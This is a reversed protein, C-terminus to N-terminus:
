IHETARSCGDHRVGVLEQVPVATPDVVGQGLRIPGGLLQNPDRRLLQAELRAGHLLLEPVLAHDLQRIRASLHTPDTQAAGKPTM